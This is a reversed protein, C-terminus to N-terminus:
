SSNFGDRFIIDEPSQREVAGIDVNDNVCRTFGVSRQDDEQLGCSPGADLAVSNAAPLMTLTPGGHDALASLHPDILFLNGNSSATITASGQNQILCNVLHFQGSLDSIGDRSFNGAVISGSVQLTSVGPTTIGNGGSAASSNGSVTAYHVFFTSATVTDLLVGAGNQFSYNLAVTSNYLSGDSSSFNKLALGGGGQNTPAQPQPIRNGSITSREISFAKGFPLGNAFVGAGYGGATNASITSRDISVASDVTGVGGGNSAAANGSIQSAVVALVGGTVFVGGGDGATSDSVMSYNLALTSDKAGVAGGQFAGANGATLTLGNIAVVDSSNTHVYFIRTEHSGSITLLNSGPGYITMPQNIEIYGSGTTLSITSGNLSAEFEVTNGASANALAIADRLSGPGSDANNSVFFTNGAEARPSYPLCLAACLAAAAGISNASARSRPFDRAIARQLTQPYPVRFSM